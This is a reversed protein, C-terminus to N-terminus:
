MTRTTPRIKSNNWKKRPLLALTYCRVPAMSASPSQGLPTIFRLGIRELEGRLFV